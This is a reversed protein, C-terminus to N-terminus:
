FYKQAIEKVAFCCIDCIGIKRAAVKEILHVELFCVQKRECEEDINSITKLKKDKACSRQQL